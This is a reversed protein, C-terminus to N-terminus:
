PSYDIVITEGDQSRKLVEELGARYASKFQPGIKKENERALRIADSLASELNAIRIKNSDTSM